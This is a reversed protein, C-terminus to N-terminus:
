IGRVKFGPYKKAVDAIKKFVGSRVNRHYYGVRGNIAKLLAARGGGRVAARTFNQILFGVQSATVKRVHSVEDSLVKGNVMAKNVYGPPTKPLLIGMRQALLVWSRKATGIRRKLEAERQESNMQIWAWIYDPYHHRGGKGPGVLYATGKALSSQPHKSPSPERIFVWKELSKKISNATAKPTNSIAASLVSGIEAKVVQEYNVGTLKAMAEVARNFNSTDITFGSKSM